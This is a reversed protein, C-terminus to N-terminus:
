GMFLVFHSCINIVVYVYITIEIHQREAQVLTNTGRSTM